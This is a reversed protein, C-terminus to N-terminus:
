SLLHAVTTANKELAGTKNAVILNQIVLPLKGFSDALAAERSALQHEALQHASGEWFIRHVLGDDGSLISLIRVGMEHAKKLMGM